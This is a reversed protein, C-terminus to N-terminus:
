RRTSLGPLKWVWHDPSRLSTSAVSAWQPPVSDHSCPQVQPTVVTRASSVLAAVLTPAKLLGMAWVGLTAALLVFLGTELGGWLHMVQMPGALGALIFVSRAFTSAVLRLGVLLYGGATAMSVFKFFLVVDVGLVAPIAALFGFLPSTAAEVRESENFAYVGHEVLNVGHGWGIFADDVTFNRWIVLCTFGFAAWVVLAIRRLPLHPM